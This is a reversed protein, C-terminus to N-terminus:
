AQSYQINKYITEKLRIMSFPKLLYDDMCTPANSNELDGLSRATMAIIKLNKDKRSDRIKSAADLGDLIPLNIDMLIIDFSIQNAKDVAQQGDRAIDFSLGLNSLMKSAVKLNLEDDEVLLLKPEKKSPSLHGTKAHQKDQYEAKTAKGVDLAFGFTSGKGKNSTCWIHGQMHKVIQSSIALGLGSGGYIFSNEEQVQTFPEFVKKQLSKDIGIGFDQVKIQLKIKKENIPFTDLYVIVKQQKSFKVANSLLNMIVQSIRIPDSKLYVHANPNIQLEFQIQNKKADVSLIQFQTQILKEINFVLPSHTLKSEKIKAFELISNVLELLHFGTLKITDITETNEKKYDDGLTSIMGVIGNLPTKIEHSLSSLLMQGENIMQEQKEIKSQLFRIYKLFFFGLLAVISFCIILSLIFLKSFKSDINISDFTSYFLLVAVAFVASTFISGLMNTKQSALQKFLNVSKRIVVQM